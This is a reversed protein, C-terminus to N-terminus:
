MEGQVKTHKSKKYESPTLGTFQKFLNNFTSKSNFGCDYAIAIITYHDYNPNELKKIVAKLRFENVYSFFNKGIHINLLETLENKTLNMQSSLDYLTLEANMWPKEEEMHKSLRAILEEARKPTFRLKMEKKVEVGNPHTTEQRLASEIKVAPADTNEKKVEPQQRAATVEALHEPHEERVHVPRFLSAQRVGFYSVAFAIITLGVHSLTATDIIKSYSFANIGGTIFYVLFLTGFLSPIFNLWILKLQRSLYSFHEVLGKRFQRLKIFTLAIYAVISTFFVMGYIVRVALYQDNQFYSVDSFNVKDRFFTYYAFTSVAFPIFHFMDRFDFRAKRDVLYITYLYVYPGFTLPILGMSIELDFFEGYETHLLFMVFKLSFTLLCAIMIRDSITVRKKTALVFAAFLSQALGIYLISQSFM